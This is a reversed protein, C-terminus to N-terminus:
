YFGVVVFVGGRYGSIGFIFELLNLFRTVMKMHLLSFCAHNGRSCVKFVFVNVFRPVYKKGGFYNEVM